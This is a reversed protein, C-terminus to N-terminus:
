QKPLSTSKLLITWSLCPISHSCLIIVIRAFSWRTCRQDQIWWCKIQRASFVPPDLYEKTIHGPIGQQNGAITAVASTITKAVIKWGISKTAGQHLSRKTVCVQMRQHCNVWWALVNRAIGHHNRRYQVLVWILISSLPWSLTATVPPSTSGIKDLIVQPRWGKKKSAAFFAIHSFTHGHQSTATM